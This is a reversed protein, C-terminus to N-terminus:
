LKLLSNLFTAPCGCADIEAAHVQREGLAEMFVTRIRQVIVRVIVAVVEVGPVVVVNATGKVVVIVAVLDTEVVMVFM